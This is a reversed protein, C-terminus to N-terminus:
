ATAERLAARLERCHATLRDHQQRLRDREITLDRLVHIAERLAARYALGATTLDIIQATLEAERQALDAICLDRDSM